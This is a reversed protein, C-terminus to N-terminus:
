ECDNLVAGPFHRRLMRNQFEDIFSCNIIIIFREFHQGANDQTISSVSHFLQDDHIHLVEGPALETTALLESGAKDRYLTNIAGSVNERNLVLISLYKCGDAHIGQGQLPDITGDGRVGTIQMLIPERPGIGWMDAWAKVFARVDDRETFAAELPDYYRLRDAMSAADNFRGGQAMPCEGLTEVEMQDNLHLWSMRKWRTNVYPDRPLNDLFGQWANLDIHPTITAKSWHQRALEEHVSTPWYESIRPLSLASDESSTAPYRDNLASQDLTLKRSADALQRVGRNIINM